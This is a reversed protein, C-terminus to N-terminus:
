IPKATPPKKQVQGSLYPRFNETMNPSTNAAMEYVTIITDALKQNRKAINKKLPSEDILILQEYTQSDSHM